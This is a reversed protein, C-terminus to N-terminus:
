VPSDEKTTHSVSLLPRMSERSSKEPSAMKESVLISSLILHIRGKLYDQEVYKVEVLYLPQLQDLQLEEDVAGYTSAELHEADGVLDEILVNLVEHAFEEGVGTLDCNSVEDLLALLVLLDPLEEVEEPRVAGELVLLSRM